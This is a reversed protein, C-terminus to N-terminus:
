LAGEFLEKEIEPTLKIKKGSEAQKAARNIKEYFNSTQPEHRCSGRRLNKRLFKSAQQEHCSGRRLFHISLPEHRCSGRRVM